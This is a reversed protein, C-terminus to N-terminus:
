KRSFEEVLDDDVDDPRVEGRCKGAIICAFAFQTVKKGREGSLLPATDNLVCKPFHRTSDMFSDLWDARIDDFLFRRGDRTLTLAPADLFQASCRTISISGRTGTIDIREDASFYKSKNYLNPSIGLDFAGLVDSDKYRWILVGPMDAYAFSRDVWGRVIEIDGFLDVAQSLKHYGDDFIAQGMGKEVELLHWLEVSLPYYRAGFMCTGLKFRVTLPEGIEGAAILEKAKVYPPYFVFNEFVKLKVGATRAAAIMRDAGALKDCMPKQVSVHKGAEACAVVMDAHCHHPTLIEVIDVTPDALLDSLKNYAVPVGWEKGRAELKQEDLDCIAYLECDPNNVYGPQHMMSIDGIGVIAARLKKKKPPAAKKTGGPAKAM